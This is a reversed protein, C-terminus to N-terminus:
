ALTHRKAWAPRNADAAGQYFTTFRQAASTIAQSPDKDKVLFEDFGCRLMYFLQDRLVDGVARIIGTYGFDERLIRATSYGRGDRYGPFAVEILAIKELFPELLRVDDGPMVRVGYHGNRGDLERLAREFGLIFPGDAGTTDDDALLTWGDPIVAGDRTVM